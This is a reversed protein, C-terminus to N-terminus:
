VHNFALAKLREAVGFLGMLELARVQEWFMQDDGNYYLQMSEAWKAGYYEAVKLVMQMLEFTEDESLHLKDM